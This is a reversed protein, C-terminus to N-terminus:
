FQNRLFIDICLYTFVECDNAGDGCMGVFLNQSQLGEILQQKQDPAMRAFVSGKL